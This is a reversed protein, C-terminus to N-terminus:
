DSYTLEEIKSAIESPDFNILDPYERYVYDDVEKRLEVSFNEL